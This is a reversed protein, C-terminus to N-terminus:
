SGNTSAGVAERRMKRAKEAGFEEAESLTDTLDNPPGTSITVHLGSLDPIQVTMGGQDPMPRTSNSSGIHDIQSFSFATNTADTELMVGPQGDPLTIPFVRRGAHTAGSRLVVLLPDGM